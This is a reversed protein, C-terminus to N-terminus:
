AHVSRGLSPPQGRRRGSKRIWRIGIVLLRIAAVVSLLFLGGLIPVDALWDHNGNMQFWIAAAAFVTVVIAPVWGFLWRLAMPIVVCAWAVLSLIYPTSYSSDFLSIGDM